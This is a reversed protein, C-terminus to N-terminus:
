LRTKIKEILDLGEQYTDVACIFGQGVVYLGDKQRTVRLPGETNLEMDDTFKLNSM